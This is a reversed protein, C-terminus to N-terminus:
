KGKKRYIKCDSCVTSVKQKKSITYRFLSRSYRYIDNNWIDNFAEKALNGFSNDENTVWCCPFVKGDYNIILTRFLQKCTTEYLPYKHRGIYYQYIYERNKPLWYNKRVEVDEGFNLDPLDDSLGIKATMFLIGLNDAMKKAQEIEHENYRNVIFQWIIIPVSSQLYRKITTLKKVNSIVLDFNGGIRYKSYSEQSAGDLSVILTNLRSQIIKKFFEEDKQLSLNSSLITKIKNDEAYKLMDFIHPNLFPEGWNYFSIEKLSPMKNIITKFTDFSMSGKKYKLKNIRSPCLPCKLNCINNTDLVIVTPPLVKGKTKYLLLFFLYRKCGRYLKKYLEIFRKFKNYM